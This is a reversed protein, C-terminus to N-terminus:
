PSVSWGVNRPPMQPPAGKFERSLLNESSKMKCLSPLATSFRCNLDLFRRSPRTLGDFRLPFKFNSSMQPGFIVEKNKKGRKKKPQLKQWTTQCLFLNQCSGTHRSLSKLSTKGVAISGRFDLGSSALLM